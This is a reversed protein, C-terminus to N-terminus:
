REPKDSIAPGRAFAECVFLQTAGEECVVVQVRVKRVQIQYECRRAAVLPLIKKARIPQPIEPALKKDSSKSRM